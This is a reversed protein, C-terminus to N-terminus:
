HSACDDIQAGRTKALGAWLDTATVPGIYSEQVVGNSDVILTTPVAEIEYKLHLAKGGSETYDLNQVDVSSSQLVKAKEIVNQCSKCTQSSFVVVLYEASCEKFDDRDIKVPAEFNSVVIETSKRRQFYIALASIALLASFYVVWIM